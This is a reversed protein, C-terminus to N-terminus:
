PRRIIRLEGMICWLLGVIMWCAAEVGGDVAFIAYAFFGVGLLSYVVSWLAAAMTM